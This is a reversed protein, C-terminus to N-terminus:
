ACCGSGGRGMREFDAGTLHSQSVVGFVPEARRRPGRAPGGAALVAVAVIAVASGWRM